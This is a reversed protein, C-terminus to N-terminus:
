LSRSQVHHRSYIRPSITRDIFALGQSPIGNQNDFDMDKFYDLGILITIENQPLSDVPFTAGLYDANLSFGYTVNVGDFDLGFSDYALKAAQEFWWANIGKACAEIMALTNADDSVDILADNNAADHITHFNEPATMTFTHYTDDNGYFSVAKTSGAEPMEQESLKAGEPEPVIDYANKVESGGANYGSAAGTDVTYDEDAGLVIGCTYYLREYTDAYVSDDTIMYTFADVAEELSGYFSVARIATDLVEIGNAGADNAYIRISDFFKTMVDVGTNVNGQASANLNENEM